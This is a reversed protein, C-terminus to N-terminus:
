RSGGGGGGGRPPASSSFPARPSPGQTAQDPMGMRLFWIGWLNSGAGIGGGWQVGGQCVVDCRMSLSTTTDSDEAARELARQKLEEAQRQRLEVCERVLPILTTQDGAQSPTRLASPGHAEWPGPGSWTWDTGSCLPLSAPSVGDPLWLFVCQSISPWPASDVPSHGLALPPTAM